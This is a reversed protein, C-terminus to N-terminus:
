FSLLKPMNIRTLTGGHDAELLQVKGGYREISANSLFLGWGLGGPKQTEQISAGLSRKMEPTIGQGFDTIDITLDQESFHCNIEVIDNGNEISADAANDLLNTVAQEVSIPINQVYTDFAKSWQQKLAIQPRFVLWNDIIAQLRHKLIEGNDARKDLTEQSLQKKIKHSKESLSQIINRCNAIQASLLQMDQNIEQALPEHKLDDIIIAMTALPTGLEHAASASMIGLSLIQEDKLQKERLSQIRHEQKRMSHRTLLGFISILIVTIVFNVWMGALHLHFSSLPSSDALELPRQYINLLSYLILQLVSVLLLDRPKLMLTGLAISLLLLYIFPNNAGGSFYVLGALILSDTAIHTLLEFSSVSREQRARLINFIQFGVEFALLAFLWNLPLRIDLYLTAFLILALQCIIAISRVRNLIRVNELNAQRNQPNINEFM